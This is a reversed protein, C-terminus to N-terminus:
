KDIHINLITINRTNAINFLYNKGAIGSGNTLNTVALTINYWGDPLSGNATFSKVIAYVWKTSAAGIMSCEEQQLKVFWPKAM